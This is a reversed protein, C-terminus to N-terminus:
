HRWARHLGTEVGCEPCAEHEAGRLDYGCKICHGRKRRIMRRATFPGLTLLWLIVAYFVTNIAFGRSAPRLPLPRPPHFWPRETPIWHVEAPFAGHAPWKRSVSDPEETEDVMYWLSIAPWGRGEVHRQDGGTQSLFAATPTALGGWYPAVDSVSPGKYPIGKASAPLRWRLSDVRLAGPRRFVTVSWVVGSTTTSGFVEEGQWSDVWM